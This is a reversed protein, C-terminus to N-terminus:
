ANSNKLRQNRLEKEISEEGFGATEITRLEYCSAKSDARTTSKSLSNTDTTEGMIGDADSEDNLRYFPSRDNEDNDLQTTLVSVHPKRSSINSITAITVDPEPTPNSRSFRLNIGMKAAAANIAPRLTPLCASIIGACMEVDSWVLLPALTYPIDYKSYNLLM